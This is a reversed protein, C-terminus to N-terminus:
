PYARATGVQEDCTVLEQEYQVILTASEQPHPYSLALHPHPRGSWGGLTGSLGAGQWRVDYGCVWVWGGVWVCVCV